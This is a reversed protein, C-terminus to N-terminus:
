ILSKIEDLMAKTYYRRNTESRLAVWKGTLDWRQLKRYSIGLYKCAEKPTYKKMKDRRVM